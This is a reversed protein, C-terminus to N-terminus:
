HLNLVQSQVTEQGVLWHWPSPDSWARASAHSPPLPPTWRLFHEIAYRHADAVDEYRHDSVPIDGYTGDKKKPYRYGGIYAETLMLCDRDVVIPSYGCRCRTKLVDRVHDLSYSLEFRRKLFSMDYEEELIKAPGRRDKNSDNRRFGSVDCCHFIWEPEQSGYLQAVHVDYFREKLEWVTCDYANSIESLTMLHATDFPCRRVQQFLIAPHQFGFDWSVLLPLTPDYTLDAVHVGPLFRGEYVGKGGYYVVSKGQIIRAVEDATHNATLGSIYDAPLFRNMATSLQTHRYAVASRPFTRIGPEKGFLHWWESVGPPPNTTVFFRRLDVAGGNLRAYTANSSRLRSQLGGVTGEGLFVTVPSEMADDIWIAGYDPGMYESINKTQGAYIISGNHLTYKTYEGQKKVERKPEPIVGQEVLSGICQQFAKWSSKYNLGYDKRFIIGENHPIMLMYMAFLAAVGTTKGSGVGGQIYHYMEPADFLERIQPTVHRHPRGWQECTPLPCLPFLQEIRMACARQTLLLRSAIHYSIVEVDGDDVADADGDLVGGGEGAADVNVADVVAEVGGADGDKVVDADAVADGDGNADVVAGVVM